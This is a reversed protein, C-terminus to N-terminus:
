KRISSYKLIYLDCTEIKTVGFSQSFHCCSGASDFLFMGGTTGRWRSWMITIQWVLLALEKQPKTGHIPQLAHLNSDYYHHLSQLVHGGFDRWITWSFNCDFFFHDRSKATSNCLLCIAYTQLGWSLVHDKTPWHNLVFMWTLVIHKIYIEGFVMSWKELESSASARKWLQSIFKYLFM